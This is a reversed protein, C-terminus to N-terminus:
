PVVNFDGALFLDQLFNPNHVPELSYGLVTENTTGQQQVVHALHPQGWRDAFIWRYSHVPSPYFEGIGSRDLYRDPEVRGVGWVRCGM